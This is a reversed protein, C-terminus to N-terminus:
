ISVDNIGWAQALREKYYNDMKLIEEYMQVIKQKTKVESLCCKQLAFIKIKLEQEPTM